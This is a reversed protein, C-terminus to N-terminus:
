TDFILSIATLDFSCAVDFLTRGSKHVLIASVQNRYLSDVRQVPNGCDSMQFEGVKGQCFEMKGRIISKIVAFYGYEHAYTYEM